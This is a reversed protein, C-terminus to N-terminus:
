LCGASFRRVGCSRICVSDIHARHCALHGVGRELQKQFFGRWAIEEGLAMLAIQLVLVALPVEAVMLAIREHLHENFAPMVYASVGVSFGNMMLTLLLWLWVTGSKLHWGAEKVGLSGKAYRKRGLVFCLIGILVSLGAINWGIFFSFSVAVMIVLGARSIKDAGTDKEALQITRM